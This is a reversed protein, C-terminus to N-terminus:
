EIKPMSATYFGLKHFDYWGNIQEESAVSLAKLIERAFELTATGNATIINNDSVAQRHIFGQENAYASYQKLENLDNATHKAGNLAGISGLFRCADCIAGLVKGSKICADILSKVQMANDNHWSMGGILILADFDSPVTQLDYDPLCKIGGISTVANKTLSVTKNEFKGQGLMNVASSLYALEWDAWQELIVYLINKMRCVGRHRNEVLEAVTGVNARIRRRSNCAGIKITRKIVQTDIKELLLDLTGIIPTTDYYFQFLDSNECHLM